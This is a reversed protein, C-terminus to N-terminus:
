TRASWTLSHTPPLDSRGHGLEFNGAITELAKEIKELYAEVQAEGWTMQTCALIDVIVEEAEPSLELPLPKRFSM